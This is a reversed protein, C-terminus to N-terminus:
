RYPEGVLPGYRVGDGPQEPDGPTADRRGGILSLGVVGRHAYDSLYDALPTETSVRDGLIVGDRMSKLAYLVEDERISLRRGKDALRRYFDVWSGPYEGQSAEVRYEFLTDDRYMASVSTILFSDDIGHEPLRVSILQGSRVGHDYTRFSVKDRLKGSRRLIGAVRERAMQEDDVTEDEDSMAYVGTGGEVAQRADIEGDDRAQVVVPYLGRYTITLVDDAELVTQTDDQDIAEDGKGWYFWGGTPTGSKPREHIHPSAVAVGNIWISPAEGCPIALEFKRNDGDGAFTETRANTLSEGARLVQLNRYDDRGREVTLDRYAGGDEKDPDIEIPCPFTMPDFFHLDKSYDVYWTMGTLESLDDLAAAATVYAFTVPGIQLDEGQVGDTTIGDASLTENGDGSYLEVIQEILTKLTAGASKFAVLHRDFLYTHDVCEIRWVMVPAVDGPISEEIRDVSGAFVLAGAFTVRVSAGREIVTRRFSGTKDILTFNCTNRSNLEDTIELAPNVALSGTFSAGGIYIRIDLGHSYSPDYIGAVV